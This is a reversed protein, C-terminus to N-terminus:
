RALIFMGDLPKIEQNFVLRDFQDGRHLEFDAPQWQGARDLIALSSYDIQARPLRLSLCEANDQIINFAAFLTGKETKTRYLSLVHNEAAAIESDVAMDFLLNQLMIKRLVNFFAMHGFFWASEDLPYTLSVIKGGLQNEYLIAGPFLREHFPSCITSLVRCDQVPQMSFLRHACRQATMRPNAIGYVAPDTEDISEYAFVSQQQTNWQGSTIGTLQGFGRELLIQASIGDLLVNAALLKHVAQDNFARLTQSCIVHPTNNATITDSFSHAIGLAHCVKAWTTSHNCLAHLSQSNSCHIHRAIDPSFLVKVGQAKRDDMGLNKLANLQDKTKALAPGFTQEHLIGNGMMDFYNITIGQSGCIAANLCQWIAYTTSKAYVGKAATELEPYVELPGKLNAITHRAVSPSNTLAPGETYPPLHPRIMFTPENGLAQQLAYWHRGEISHTDPDSSMLALRTKPNADRVAQRLKVAPELLSDRSIDLWVGRWPHPKGSALIKSLLEETTVNCGLVEKLRTMHLHCFCGGWGIDPRHNHLRWDDEVWIAVPKLEHALYSFVDCLYAQWNPCLPCTAISSEVGNEGVMHTFNQGPRIIRGPAGHHITAWPNLSLSIAEKELQGKLVKAMQVYPEVEGLTAHGTNLEEPLLFLMVQEIRSAKCFQVLEAIRDDAHFFPDIQYRLIYSFSQTTMM